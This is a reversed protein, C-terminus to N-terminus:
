TGMTTQLGLKEAMGRSLIDPCAAMMGFVVAEKFGHSASAIDAIRDQLRTWPLRAIVGDVETREKLNLRTAARAIRHAHGDLQPLEAGRNFCLDNFQMPFEFDEGLSTLMGKTELLM